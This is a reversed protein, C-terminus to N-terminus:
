EAPVPAAGPNEPSAAPKPYPGMLLFSVASLLYLGACFMLVERYGGFMDYLRGVITSSAALFVSATLTIVGYISGYSKMGFYRATVYGAIDIDAGAALGILCIAISATQVTVHDSMLLYCGIVPALTAVFGVAPAWIRDLLLGIVLTAIFTSMAMLGAVGAAASREIGHGVLMPQLQSLIGFMGGTGAGIAFALVAVRWNKFAALWELLGGGKGITGSKVSAAASDDRRDKVLFWGVPVGICLTLAAMVYYGAQWGYRSMATLLLAPLFSAFVTIGIRTSSLAVGRSAEFWSTVARTYTVSSTAVGTVSMCAYFVYYYPLSGPNNALAIYCLGSLINGTLLVPRVGYRDALRGIIPAMLAGLLSANLALAIDGRTWGFAAQLPQIFGSMVYPWVSQGTAAVLSAGLAVPWHQRWELLRESAM